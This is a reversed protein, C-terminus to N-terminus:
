YTIQQNNLRKTWATNLKSAKKSTLITFAISYFHGYRISYNGYIDTHQGIIILYAGCARYCIEFM